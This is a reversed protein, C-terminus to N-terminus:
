GIDNGPHQNMFRHFDMPLIISLSSQFKTIYHTRRDCTEVKSLLQHLRLKLDLTGTWVVLPMKAAVAALVLNGAPILSTTFSLHKCHHFEDKTFSHFNKM